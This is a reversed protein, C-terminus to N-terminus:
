GPIDVNSKLSTLIHHELLMHVIDIVREVASHLSGINYCHTKSALWSHIDV